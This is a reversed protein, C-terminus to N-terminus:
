KIRIEERMKKLANERRIKDSKSTKEKARKKWFEVDRALIEVEYELDHITRNASDLLTVVKKHERKLEYYYRPAYLSSSDIITVYSYAYEYMPEHRPTYEERMKNEVDASLSLLTFMMLLLIKKLM